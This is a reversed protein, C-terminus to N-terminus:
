SKTRFTFMRNGMMIVDGDKLAIKRDARVFTTSYESLNELVWEGNEFAIRAQERSTISNNLEDTNARNLIHESGSFEVAPDSQSENVWKVKELTFAHEEELPAGMSWPNVTAGFNPQSFEDPGAGPMITGM